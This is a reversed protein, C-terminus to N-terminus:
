SHSAQLTWSRAIGLRDMKWYLTRRGIGLSRAAASRNGNCRQLEDIVKSAEALELWDKLSMPARPDAQDIVRLLERFLREREGRIRVDPEPREEIGDHQLALGPELAAVNESM